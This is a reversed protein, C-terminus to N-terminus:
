ACSESTNLNFSETISFKEPGTSKDAVETTDVPPFIIRLEPVPRLIYAEPLTVVVLLINSPGDSSYM